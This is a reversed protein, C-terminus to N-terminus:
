FMLVIINLRHWYKTVDWKPQRPTIVFQSDYRLFWQIFILYKYLYKPHIYVGSGGKIMKSTRTARRQIQM